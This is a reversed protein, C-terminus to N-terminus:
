GFVYVYWVAWIMVSGGGFVAPSASCMCMSSREACLIESISVTPRVSLLYM